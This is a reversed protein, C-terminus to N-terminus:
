GRGAFARGNARLQASLGPKGAPAAKADAQPAGNQGVNIRFLATVERGGLDRAILKIKLEGKLGKPVDGVFQGTQGNFQVWAPLPKGDQLTATLRVVAQPQTHAFADAPVTLSLHSGAEAFQDPVGQFLVLAPEEAKAVVTRFGETRTYVDSLEAARLDLVPAQESARTGQGSGFLLTDGAALSGPAAMDTSVRSDVAQIVPTPEAVATPSQVAALTEVAPQVAVPVAAQAVVPPSVTVTGSNDGSRVNGALNTLTATVAYNQGVSLLAASGAVPTASALDLTWRGDQATVDYTAGNVTVQLTEGEGVTATGSLVPTTSTTTLSDVTPTSPAITDLVVDRSVAVGSLGAATNAIRAEITWNGAHVGADVASWSTGSTTATTWTAGGDFSVQVVENSGLPTGISGSVTRGATGDSTVFDTPSAGTDKTMADITVPQSSLAPNAVTITLSASASLEGDSGSVLVTYTGTSGGPPTGSFSRTAPDFVLWSPLPAGGALTATYTIAPGDIDTFAAVSVPAMPQGVTGNGGAGGHAVPADNVAEVTVSVTYTNSGGKGDSVTYSFSDSGNYDAGPTYVFSGDAAIGISGHQPAGAAAYAIADGDPDTAAPLTGSVATDERTAIAANAAVPADNVPTVTVGVTYTNSGGNGDSVTYSFSDTGTYNAAPTYTYSGDPNVVVTGHAPDGAKAYTVTDGDVDSAAPLTGSKVTDEATGISAGAATPADNVPTVTISVTYTNNGGNADSVTYTFSDTGNYNAAPTYTYSGNPNVVVTGHVPDGAKAYTVTDGDVDSAAPLTGSKVTDEATGISAGAATPADNVPTVTISVTYTNSGGNTDSVTYSFSDTGNYNAAPTYTYSGNPNVVVTGHSPDGAKAYAVADGDVDTAAPLTGSKVTDEATGISAGAATPADNVPTVTISVTYTNSSGNTDSVTYTFSDTGNYNAAPTYSYTGNPNVVVTGHAPDGAKAYTVTDGDVDSAAPLTGSKVTDEATGISAGAATPADNVPTVTISVTYTNNGGNADSVTYTFSDTGNYNAAPTYTYSGNPNVVVTGHVPDGAKAYTVTDGDVDSAAPLTGSKVTDEATGISAGAATPADNVPTVTISVTYTNSGGNADSVTYTFSDTGNYNAAPTYSYTGNPNVVVTGHAPDGAKAYAVTDGDVDSAAPLTGSKVADEATTISANAAIPAENVNTVIVTVAQESANGSADRAVVTFTYGAKTEFDLNGSALRVAGTGANILLVGADGVGPKLEYAVVKNTFGVDDAAMATYLLNQNEAANVTASAGAVFVPPTTDVSPDAFDVKLDARSAGTVAGANASTFAANGFTVGLNSVDNANAHATASGTFSLQAHTADIRTVHAALGAPLNSFSIGSLEQGNSGAFTGNALTITSTATITGDNASAEAFSTASYTLNPAPTGTVTTSGGWAAGVSFDFSFYATASSSGNVGANVKFTSMSDYYIKVRYGDAYISGNNTANATTYLFTVSGDNNVTPVLFTSTSLEYRSFGQFSQFQRDSAGDASADIDYSNVVVNQLTVAVGTGAGTYTGSKFFSITFTANGGNASTQMLPQFYATNSGPTTPSDYTSITTNSITTTVVADVAQGDITIVSNFRMVDGNSKGTGIISTVSNFTLTQWNANYVTVTDLEGTWGAKDLEMSATELEGSRAELNWNGYASSGTLDTSAAVDAGTLQGIRDIFATGDAGAAVDCGYILLDGGASLNQGIQGLAGAYQEVNTSTVVSTGLEIRGQDGHTVLHIADVPAHGDLAAIMQQLGDRTHDLVIVEVGPQVGEVLKQYDPVNDEIFVIEHRAIEPPLVAAAVVHTDQQGDTREAGLDAPIEAVTAKAAVVAADATAGDFMVRPELALPAPGRRNLVRRRNSSGTLEIANQDLAPISKM